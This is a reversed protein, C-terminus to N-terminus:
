VTGLRSSGLDAAVNSAQAKNLLLFSLPTGNHWTQCARNNPINIEM